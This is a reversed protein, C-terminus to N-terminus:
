SSEPSTIKNRDARKVASMFDTLRSESLAGGTRIGSCLDVGYPGVQAIAAEVNGAELGGALFVPVSVSEVIRASITWNHTNGTGGLEPVEAGPCGSDLLLADVWPALRVAETRAGDDEVHIVQVIQVQAFESRLASYVSTPVARVLQVTTTGCRKVHRLVASPEVEKTLLFSDLGTPTWQAIKAILDDSIIGPGSPMDAVLGLADVGAAVALEAEQLSSICCSKVRTRM